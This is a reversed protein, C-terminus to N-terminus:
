EDIEYATVPLVESNEPDLYEFVCALFRGSRTPGFVIPRGSSMSKQVQKAGLVVEEFEEPTVGHLGIYEILENNWVFLVHPMDNVKLSVFVKRRDLPSKARAVSTARAKAIPGRGIPARIQFHRLRGQRGLKAKL